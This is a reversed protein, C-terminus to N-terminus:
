IDKNVGLEPDIQEFDVLTNYVIINKVFMGKKFVQQLIFIGVEGEGKPFRYPCGQWTM